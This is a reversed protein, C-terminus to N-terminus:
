REELVLLVAGHGRRPARRRGGGACFSHGLLSTSQKQRDRPRPPRAQRCPAAAVGASRFLPRGPIHVAILAAAGLSYRGRRIDKDPRRALCAWPRQRRWSTAAELSTRELFAQSALSLQNIGIKCKFAGQCTAGFAGLGSQPSKAREARSFSRLLCGRLGSQPSKAREARLFSRLM